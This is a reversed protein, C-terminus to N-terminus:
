KRGIFSRPVYGCDKATGKKLQVWLWEPNEDNLVLVEDGEHVTIELGKEAQFDFLAVVAMQGGGLDVDEHISERLRNEGRVLLKERLPDHVHRVIKPLCVLNKSIDVVAGANGSDGCYNIASFITMVRGLCNFAFGLSVCEHGRMVLQLNNTKLFKKVMDSGIRFVGSGRVPHDTFGKDCSQGPDSWLLDRAVLNNWSNDEELVLASKL